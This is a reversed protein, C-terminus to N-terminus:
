HWNGRNKDYVRMIEDCVAEVPAASDVRAHAAKGYMPARREMIEALEALIDRGTISPRQASLPNAGLRAAQVAVDPALWIVSGHGRMLDINASREVIGGGCALVVNQEENGYSTTVMALIRSEHERFGDWGCAEVIEAVSMGMDECLLHDLDVFSFRLRKALELGITTKGSARGGVLYIISM